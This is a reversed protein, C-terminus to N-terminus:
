VSSLTDSEFVNKKYWDFTRKIGDALGVESKFGLGQAKSIDPCRRSPSGLDDIGLDLRLKKGVIQHCIKVVELISIENDGSGLNFVQNLSRQDNILMMLMQVADDIYCFSRTHSPSFVEISDGNKALYAKQLQQPIVHSMGMRPGYVNHPRFITYPIGAHICMSEGYIKSLMYTSRPSYLNGCAIHTSEKTPIELNFHELTGAYVESTSAYLLRCAKRQKKIMKIVNDLMFINKTLVSYPQKLVHSVGIIAALHIVFDYDNDLRADIGDQLLDEKLFECNANDLLSRLAIDEVGRSFNDLLHVSYGQILLEKALAEGIFGAGGTILVKKM